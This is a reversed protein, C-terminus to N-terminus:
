APADGYAELIVWVSRMSASGSPQCTRSASGTCSSTRGTPSTPPIARSSPASLAGITRLQETTLIGGDSRVRMAFFEADLEEPALTATQGGDIGEQRQTYLGM